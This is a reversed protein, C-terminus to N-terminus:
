RKGAGKAVSKDILLLGYKSKYPGSVVDWIGAGSIIVTYDGLPWDVNSATKTKVNVHYAQDSSDYTPLTASQWVTGTATEVVSVQIQSTSVFANNNCPDYLRFKVPVTSGDQMWYTDMTSIPPLWDVTYGGAGFTVPTSSVISNGALDTAQLTATYVGPITPVFALQYAGDALVANRTEDAAPPIWGGTPDVHLTAQPVGAIGSTADTASFRIVAMENNILHCQGVPASIVNIVPPTKDIKLGSAAGQGINGAKDIATAIDSVEGESSVTHSFSIEAGPEAIQPSALGSIADSATYNVTVDDNYWGNSNPTDAVVATVVPATIDLKFSAGQPEAANGQADEAAVSLMHDGEQVVTFQLPPTFEQDPNDDLTFSAVALDDDPDTVELLASVTSKYWDNDGMTGDLTLTIVPPSGAPPTVQKPGPVLVVHEKYSGVQGDKTAATGMVPETEPIVLKFAGQWYTSAPIVQGRSIPDWYAADKANVTDWRLIGKPWLKDVGGVIAGQFFWPETPAANAVQTDIRFYGFQYTSNAPCTVTYIYTYTIPDFSSLEVTPFVDALTQSAVMTMVVLVLVLLLRRHM